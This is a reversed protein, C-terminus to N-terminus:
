RQHCGTCIHGSLTWVGPDNAVDADAYLAATAESDDMRKQLEGAYPWSDYTPSAKASAYLARAKEAGLGGKLAFDGWATFFGEWVHPVIAENNCVQFPYALPGSPYAYGGAGDSEWECAEANENMHDLTSAYMPDSAPLSGTSLARLFHGYTPMREIGEQLLAKGRDASASDALLGGLLTHALGSFAPIRADKPLSEYAKDFHDLVARAETQFQSTGPVNESIRWFRMTAAYLSARGDEPHEALTDDLTRILDPLESTNGATIAKYGDSVGASDGAPPEATKSDSGSCGTATVFLFLPVSRTVLSRLGSM